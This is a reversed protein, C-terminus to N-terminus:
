NPRKACRYLRKAEGNPHESTGYVHEANGNVRETLGYAREANGYVNEVKSFVQRSVENGRKPELIEDVASDMKGKDLGYGRVTRTWFSESSAIGAQREGADRRIEERRRKMFSTGNQVKLRIRSALEEIAASQGCHRPGFRFPDDLSVPQLESHDPSGFIAHFAVTPKPKEEITTEPPRSAV